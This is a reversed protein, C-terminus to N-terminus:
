RRIVPRPYRSNKAASRPRREEEKSPRASRSLHSRSGPDGGERVPVDLLESQDLGQHMLRVQQHQVFGRLTEVREDLTLEVLENSSVDARPPVM